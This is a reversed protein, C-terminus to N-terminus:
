KIKMKCFICKKEINFIRNDNEIIFHMKLIIKIKVIEYM